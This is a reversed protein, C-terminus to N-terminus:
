KKEKQPEFRAPQTAAVVVDRRREVDQRQERHQPTESPATAAQTTPRTTSSAQFIDSALAASSEEVDSRSYRERRLTRGQHDLVTITYQDSDPTARNCDIEMIVTGGSFYKQSILHMRDVGLTYMWFAVNTDLLTQRDVRQIPTLLNDWAQDVQRQEDPKLRPLMPSVMPGCGGVGLVVCLITVAQMAIGGGIFHRAFTFPEGAGEWLLLVRWM